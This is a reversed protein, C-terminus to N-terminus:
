SEELKVEDDETASPPIPASKPKATGSTTSKPKMTKPVQENVDDVLNLLDEWQAQIFSQTGLIVTQIALGANIGVSARQDKPIHAQQDRLAARLHGFYQYSLYAFAFGSTLVVAVGFIIALTGLLIAFAIGVIWAATVAVFLTSLAILAVLVFASFSIFTLVPLISLLVVATVFTQM